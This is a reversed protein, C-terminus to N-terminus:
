STNRDRLAGHRRQLSTSTIHSMTFTYQASPIPMIGVPKYRSLSLTPPTSASDISIVSLASLRLSQSTNPVALSM